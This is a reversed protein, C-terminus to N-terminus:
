KFASTHQVHAYPDYPPDKVKYRELYAPKGTSRHWMSTPVPCQCYHDGFIFGSPRNDKYCRKHYCALGCICVPNDHTSTPHHSAFDNYYKRSRYYVMEQDDILCCKANVNIAVPFVMPRTISRQQTM